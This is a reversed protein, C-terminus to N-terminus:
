SDVGYLYYCAHGVTTSRLDSRARYLWSIPIGSDAGREHYFAYCCPFDSVRFAANVAVPM